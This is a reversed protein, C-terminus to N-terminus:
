KAVVKKPPVYDKTFIEHEPAYTALMNVYWDRNANYKSVYQRLLAFRKSDATPKGDDM